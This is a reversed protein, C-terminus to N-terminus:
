FIIECNNISTWPPKKDRNSIINEVTSAIKVVYVLIEMMTSIYKGRLFFFFMSLFPYKLYLSNGDFCYDAAQTASSHHITSTNYVHSNSIWYVYGATLSVCGEPRIFHLLCTISIQHLVYANRVDYIANIVLVFRSSKVFWKKVPVITLWWTYPFPPPLNRVGQSHDHTAGSHKGSEERLYHRCGDYRGHTM